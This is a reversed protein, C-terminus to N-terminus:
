RYYNQITLFDKVINNVAHPAGFVASIGTNPAILYVSSSHDVLYDSQSDSQKQKRAIIGMNKLFPALKKETETVGIAHESFSTVYANLKETSDREPDVSVFVISIKDEVNHKKKLTDVAASLKGLTTPCIDPCHTFGFFWFSWQGTLREPTFPTGYHDILEFSAISVGQDYLYTADTLKTRIDAQTSNFTYTAIGIGLSVGM